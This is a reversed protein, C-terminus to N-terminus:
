CTALQAPDVLTQGTGTGAQDPLVDWWGYGLPADAPDTNTFSVRLVPQSPGGPTFTGTSKCWALVQRTGPAAPATLPGLPMRATSGRPYTTGNFSCDNGTAQACIGLATGRNNGSGLLAGPVWVPDPFPCSAQSEECVDAPPPLSMILDGGTVDTLQRGPPGAAPGSSSSAGGAITQLIWDRYAWVPQDYLADFSHEAGSANTMALTAGLASVGTLVGHAVFVGGGSDGPQIIANTMMPDIGAPFVAAFDPRQSRLLAAYGSAVPDIV